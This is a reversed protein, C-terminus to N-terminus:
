CKMFGSEAGILASTQAPVIGEDQGQPHAHLSPFKQTKHTGCRRPRRHRARLLWHRHDPHEARRRGATALVKHGRELAANALATVDFILGHRDLILPRLVLVIPQGAEGGIQHM